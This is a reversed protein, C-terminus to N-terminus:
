FLTKMNEKSKSKIKKSVLHLIQNFIINGTAIYYQWSFSLKNDELLYPAALLHCFVNVRGEYFIQINQMVIFCLLLQLVKKKIYQLLIVLKSNQTGQSHRTVEM